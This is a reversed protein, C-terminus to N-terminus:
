VVARLPTIRSYIESCNTVDYGFARREDLEEKHYFTSGFRVRRFSEFREEWDEYGHHCDNQGTSGTDNNKHNYVDDINSGRFPFHTAFASDEIVSPPPTILGEHVATYLEDDEKETFMEIDGEDYSGDSDRSGGLSLVEDDTELLIEENKIQPPDL